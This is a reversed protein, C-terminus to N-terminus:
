RKPPSLFNEIVWVESKAQGAAFAVHKGDPHVSAEGVGEAAFAFSRPEGGESPVSMLVAKGQLRIAADVPPAERLGCPRLYDM